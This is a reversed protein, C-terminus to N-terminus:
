VSVTAVAKHNATARAAHAWTPSRHTIAAIGSEESKYKRNSSAPSPLDCSRDELSERAAHAPAQLVGHAGIGIGMVMEMKERSRWRGDGIEWRGDGDGDGDRDRDVPQASLWM